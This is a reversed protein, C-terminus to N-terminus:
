QGGGIVTLPTRKFNKGHGNIVVNVGQGNCLGCEICQRRTGGKAAYEDSALCMAEGSQKPQDGLNVRFYAWGRSSVRAAEKTDHVSAQLYARWPKGLPKSHFNTYGTWGAAYTEVVPMIAHFPVAAPDGYAGIRVKRGRLYRAHRKPNFRPYVRRKLARYVAAPANQVEVYCQRRKGLQGRMPCTGCIASDAGRFVAEVPHMDTRIVWLQPMDGTKSNKSELTMVAAIPSGDILSPGRYLVVGIPKM